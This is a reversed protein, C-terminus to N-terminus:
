HVWLKLAIKREGSSEECETKHHDEEEGSNVEDEGFGLVQTQLHDLLVEGRLHCDPICVAPGSGSWYYVVLALSFILVQQRESRTSIFSAVFVGTIHSTAPICFM